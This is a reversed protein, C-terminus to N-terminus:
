KKLYSQHVMVARKERLHGYEYMVTEDTERTVRHMSGGITEASERAAAPRSLFATV